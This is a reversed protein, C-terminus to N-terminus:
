VSKAQFDENQISIRYGKSALKINKLYKDM